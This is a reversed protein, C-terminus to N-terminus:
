APAAARAAHIAREIERALSPARQRPVSLALPGDSSDVLIHWREAAPVDLAYVGRVSALRVNGRPTQVGLISAEKRVRGGIRLRSGGTALATTLAILCAALIMPLAISLPHLRPVSAAASTVLFLLDTVVFAAMVRSTWVLPRPALPVGFSVGAPSDGLSRLGSHPEINWPQVSAPLGWRCEVPGPWHRLVESFQWLLREPDSSELVRHSIGSESELQVTYAPHAGGPSGEADLVWRVQGQPAAVSGPPLPGRALVHLRRRRPWSAAAVGAAALAFAASTSARVPDIATPALWPVGALVLLMPCLFIPALAPQRGAFRLHTADASVLELRGFGRSAARPERRPATSEQSWRPAETMSSIGMAEDNELTM